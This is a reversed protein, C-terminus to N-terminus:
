TSGLPRLRAPRYVVNSLERRGVGAQRLLRLHPALEGVEAPVHSDTALAVRVGRAICARLFRPDPDNVHVNVEVAVGASSLMAAVRDYLHPTRHQLSERQFFRFPHALVDIGSAILKETEELFLCEAEAQSTEGEKYGL